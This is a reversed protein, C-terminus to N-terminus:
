TTVSSSVIQRIANIRTTNLFIKQLIYNYYNTTLMVNSDEQYSKPTYM